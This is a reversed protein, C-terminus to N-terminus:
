SARRRRVGFPVGALGLAAAAGPTPIAGVRLTGNVLLDSTDFLINGSVIRDFNGTVSAFDFLDFEDGVEPIFGSEFSIELTGDLALEGSLVDFTEFLGDGTGGISLAIVSTDQLLVDGSALSAGGEIRGANILSGDFTVGDQVLVGPADTATILGGDLNTIDGRFTAGPDNTFLRVGADVADTGSGIIIGANVITGSQVDDSANGVQISVGSGAGGRADITGGALNNIEFQDGTGDVYVTGNRQRGTAVIDGTNNLLLGTGDINVARSDSSITGANNVVGNSHDAGEGNVANGFYLGNQVGTITGTNNIEGSFSVGNVFRVGAVTGNAGESSITGTNTLTVEALGINGVNGIRVGDGATNLAAGANGRGRIAGDNTLTFTNAGDAAGGVEAGFGSGENSAGADIEGGALNNVTYGDATGDAYFTGNRQNGTGLIQGSNNLTLGFGDLNFARSDSSILGTNNVVGNSHDAGQGNVANGFYVGNQTGTITGSNELVGDFSIGNVFRVGAVTGNTAESSITGSNTLTLEAVGINGVNGIRVGDGATGLAAGANGRGRITGDNTLVFTNAGDQASGIEAGFGSGDNGVGADILGGASNNVVYNDATGDVYFTGNRQNGTGLIQGTNNVTLGDGDLNFARSGSSILGSNNVVGGSHDANGIYLGNRLGEITGENTLLGRFGVGDGVRIGATTGSNSESSFVGTSENLITGDFFRVEGQGLATFNALRLGDGSLGSGSSVGPTNTRGQVRGRNILTATTQAIELGIGSGQNGAGADILGSNEISFNNAVSDSYVTGNRQDGTGILTGLNQLDVAGGINVARSNSSIVGTTGNLLTGSGFGNVFNVGNFGGIIQGFNNVTTAASTEVGSANTSRIVGGLGNNIVVGDSGVPILIANDDEALRWTSMQDTVDIQDGASIQAHTMSAALGVTAILTGARMQSQIDM